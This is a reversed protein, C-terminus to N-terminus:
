PGRLRPKPTRPTRDQVSGLVSRDAGKRSSASTGTAACSRESASSTRARATSGRAPASMERGRLCVWGTSCNRRKNMVCPLATMPPQRVYTHLKPALYAGSAVGVRANECNDYTLRVGLAVVGNRAVGTIGAMRMAALM